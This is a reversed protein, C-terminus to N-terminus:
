RISLGSSSSSGIANLGTLSAPGTDSHRTRNESLSGHHLEMRSALSPASATPTGYATATASPTSTASASTSSYITSMRLSAVTGANLHGGPQNDM